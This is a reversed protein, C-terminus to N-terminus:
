ALGQDAIALLAPWQPAGASTGGVEIWDNTTGNYPISDYVAFGTSASADYAVTSGDRAM